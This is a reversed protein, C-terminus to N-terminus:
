AHPVKLSLLFAKGRYVQHSVEMLLDKCLVRLAQSQGNNPIYSHCENIESNHGLNYKKDPQKHTMKVIFPWLVELRVANLSM